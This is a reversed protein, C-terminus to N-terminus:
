VTTPLILSFPTLRNLDSYCAKSLLFCSKIRQSKHIEAPSKSDTDFKSSCTKLARSSQKQDMVTSNPVDFDSFYYFIIHLPSKALPLEKLFLGFCKVKKKRHLQQFVNVKFNYLLRWYEEDKFYTGSSSVWSIIVPSQWEQSGQCHAM